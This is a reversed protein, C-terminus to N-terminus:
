SYLHLPLFVTFFYKFDSLTAYFCTTNNMWPFFIYKFFLIVPLVWVLQLGVIKFKERTTYQPAYDTM